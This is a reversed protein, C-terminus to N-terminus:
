VHARGIEDLAAATTVLKLTSAPKMDKAANRAYLVKGTELSRVEIGWFASAFAPRDVIADIRKKLIAPSPDGALVLLALLANM